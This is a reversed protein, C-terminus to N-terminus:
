VGDVKAMRDLMKELGLMEMLKEINQKDNKCWM